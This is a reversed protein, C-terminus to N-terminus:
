TNSWGTAQIVNNVLEHGDDLYSRAGTALWLGRLGSLVVGQNYTYVMPNLVNCKRTGPNGPGDWGRIHFGDAYLGNSNIMKSNKLWRYAKIAAQLHSPHHPLTIDGDRIGSNQFPADIDDGPFYLYM